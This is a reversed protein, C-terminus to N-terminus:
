VRVLQEILKEKEAFVGTLFSNIQGQIIFIRDPLVCKGPEFDSILRTRFLLYKQSIPHWAAALLDHPSSGSRDPLMLLVNFGAISIEESPIHPMFGCGLGSSIGAAWLSTQVDLLRNQMEELLWDQPLQDEWRTWALTRLRFFEAGGPRLKYEFMRTNKPFFGPYYYSMNDQIGHEIELLMTYLGLSYKSFEPAYAAELSAIGRLGRDFLSFAVMKNKHYICLEWTNFDAPSQERLLHIKIPLINQWGHVKSKFLRWLEDMEPRPTFPQFVPTFLKNNRSMLKRLRKKWTFNHLPIRLMLCPRFEDEVVRGCTSYVSLDNRFWGNELMEDLQVPTLAGVRFCAHLTPPFTPSPASQM